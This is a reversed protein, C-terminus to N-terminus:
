VDWVIPGKFEDMQQDLWIYHGLLNSYPFYYAVVLFTFIFLLGKHGLDSISEEKLALYVVGLQLAFVTFLLKEMNAIVSSVHSLLAEKTVGYKAIYIDGNCM